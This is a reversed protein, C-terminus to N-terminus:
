PKLSFVCIAFSTNPGKAGQALGGWLRGQSNVAFQAFHNIVLQGKKAPDKNCYLNLTDTKFSSSNQM